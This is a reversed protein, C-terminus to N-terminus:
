LKLLHIYFVNTQLEIERNSLHIGRGLTQYAPPLPVGIFSFLNARELQKGQPMPPKNPLEDAHITGEPTHVGTAGGLQRFASNWYVDFGRNVLEVGLLAQQNQYAGFQWPYGPALLLVRVQGLSGKKAYNNHKNQKSVSSSSRKRKGEVNPFFVTALCLLCCVLILTRPMTVPHPTLQSTVQTSNLYISLVFIDSREVDLPFSDKIRETLM